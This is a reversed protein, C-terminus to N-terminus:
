LEVKNERPSWKYDYLKLDKAYFEAIKERQWVPVVEFADEVIETASNSGKFIIVNFLFLVFVKLTGEPAAGVCAFTENLGVEDNLIAEIEENMNEVKLVFAKRIQCLPCLDLQRAFHPDPVRNKM